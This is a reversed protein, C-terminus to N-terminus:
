LASMQVTHLEIDPCKIVKNALRAVRKEDKRITQEMNGVLVKLEALEAQKQKCEDVKRNYATVQENAVFQKRLTNKQARLKSGNSRNFKTLEKSQVGISQCVTSRCRGIKKAIEANSFGNARLELMRNTEESKTHFCGGYWYSDARKRERFRKAGERSQEKKVKPMCEDCYKRFGSTAVFERGCVACRKLYPKWGMKEAYSRIDNFLSSTRGNSSPALYCIVTNEKVNFHQAIEKTTIM